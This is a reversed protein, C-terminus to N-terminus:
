VKAIFVRVTEVVVGQEGVHLDFWMISKDRKLWTLQRKAFQRSKVSLEEIMEERSMLGRLFRSIYRYELGLAELREHPVGNQLLREVEEIMGSDLRDIIRQHLVDKHKDMDISLGIMLVDYPCDITQAEPVSGLKKAIEIARVLRRPNDREITAARDPDLTELIEFLEAASKEELEARLEENPEVEPLSVKGLLADIYFFTGGCIIPLKGRAIIDDIAVQADRKFDAATYVEKPDAVDLLHHPVGDTEEPTVKATGIDLGRYVQRSDASIVEGDFKKALEIALGTKGSATPGVIVIIKPKAVLHSYIRFLVYELRPKTM